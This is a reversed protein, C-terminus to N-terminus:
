KKWGLPKAATWKGWIKGLVGHNKHNGHKQGPM